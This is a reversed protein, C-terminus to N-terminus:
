SRRDKPGWSTIERAIARCDAAAAGADYRVTLWVGLLTATLMQSRRSIQQPQM